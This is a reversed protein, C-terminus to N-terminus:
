GAILDSICPLYRATLSTLSVAIRRMYTAAQRGLQQSEIQLIDRAEFLFFMQVWLKEVVMSGSNVDLLGSKAKSFVFVGALFRFSECNCPFSYSVALV